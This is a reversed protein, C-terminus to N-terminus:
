RHRIFRTCHGCALVLFVFLAGTHERCFHVLNVFGTSSSIARSDEILPPSSALFAPPALLGRESPSRRKRFRAATLSMRRTASYWPPLRSRDEIEISLILRPVHNLVSTSGIM